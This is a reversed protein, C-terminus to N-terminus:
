HDEWSPAALTLYFLFTQPIGRTTRASTAISLLALTFLFCFRRCAPIIHTNRGRFVALTAPCFFVVETSYWTYQSFWNVLAFSCFFFVCYASMRDESYRPYDKSNKM